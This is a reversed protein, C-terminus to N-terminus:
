KKLRVGLATVGVHQAHREGHPCVGEEGVGAASERVRVDSSVRVAESEWERM